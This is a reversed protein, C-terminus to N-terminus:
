PTPPTCGEGVCEECPIEIADQPFTEVMLDTWKDYLKDCSKKDGEELLDCDQAECYAVCLGWARGGYEYFVSDCVTEEAPPVEDPTGHGPVPHGAPGAIAVNGCLAATLFLSLVFILKKM